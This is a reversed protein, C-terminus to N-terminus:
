DVYGPPEPSGVPLDWRQEAVRAAAKVQAVAPEGWGLVEPAATLSMMVRRYIRGGDPDPRRGEFSGILGVM